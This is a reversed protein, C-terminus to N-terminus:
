VASDWKVIRAQTVNTHTIGYGMLGYWAIGKSRGYDDTIKARIEEPTHIAECVTDEGFFFVWDGSTGTGWADATDTFPDFTTSDAAGGAPITTQEVFRVNEYSRGIEGNMIMEFGSETYQSLTELTNKLGRLALPRAIAYYDDHQYRPINRGKMTDVISKVNATGIPNVATLTATSNTTLTIDVTSSTSAARLPTLNFQQHVVCDIDCVADYKLVKMIPQRVSVMALSELFDTYPVSFGREYMTLTGQLVTHSGQPVTNTETLQRNGRNMMPVTDWTFTQGTRTVKGFADRVDAFQRFKNTAAVAQRLEKSLNFSAYFGGLSNTVFLQGAM